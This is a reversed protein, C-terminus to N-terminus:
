QNAKYEHIMYPWDVFGRTAKPEALQDMGLVRFGAKLYAGKGMPSSELWADIGEKDARGTGWKVLKTGLGRRQFSPDIVLLKLFWYKKGKMTEERTRNMQAMFRNFLTPSEKEKENTEISEQPSNEDLKQWMAFGAMESGEPLDTSDKLLGDEDDVVSANPPLRYIGVHYYKNQAFSDRLTKTARALSEDRTPARGLEPDPEAQLLEGLEDPSTNNPNNAFADHRIAILRPIESETALRTVFQAGDLPSATTM